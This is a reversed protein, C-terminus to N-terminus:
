WGKKICKIIYKINDDTLKNHLPLSIHTETFRDLNPLDKRLGGFIQNKDIRLHVVSVEIGKSRMMRVFDLRREVHVSFLWNAHIRDKKNEFLIVGPVKELDKRYYEVIKARRNFIKRFAKLHEIGLSAAIDNMHLKYGIEKVDWEPEGLDTPKRKIRDIGYWRRRRAEDYKEQSDLCLMGGDGTTIHKIAQFSFCTYPSIGGISRGKYVAGLAHAADEIVILKYKKAIEHIENLDCPYGGWHVVLIAKTKKTVRHEIDYPDINGTMYQVDAFVPKAQQALIVHSTAMMTQATTIVEDGYRIGAMALSLFLASTGSNLAVPYPAGITQKFREEFEKVIKGEGIYGSKLTRVVYKIAGKAVYPYFMSINRKQSKINKINM